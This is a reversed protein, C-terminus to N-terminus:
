IQYEYIKINMITKISRILDRIKNWLEEYKKLTDKSEDTNVLTLYKNENSNEVHGYIKSITLYLSKVSNTTVYSLDKVTVYRIHQILINRYTNEDAKIKKPYLNKINIMDDFFYYTGNKIEIEKASNM